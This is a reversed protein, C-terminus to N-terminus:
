RCSTSSSSTGEIRQHVIHDQRCDRSTKSHIGLRGFDLVKSIEAVKGSFLMKFGVFRIKAKERWASESTVSLENFLEFLADLFQATTSFYTHTHILVDNYEPDLTHTYDLSGYWQLRRRNISCSTVEDKWSKFNPLRGKSYVEIGWRRHGEVQWVPIM